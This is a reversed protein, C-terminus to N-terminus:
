RFKKQLTTHACDYMRAIARQSHTLLLRRYTAEDLDALKGHLRQYEIQNAKSKFHLKSATFQNMDMEFEEGTLDDKATIRGLKVKDWEIGYKRALKRVGNDSVWYMKWIQVFSKNLILHELEEKNPLNDKEFGVNPRSLNYKSALNRIPKSSCWYMKWIQEFTNTLLLEALHEKSINVMFTFNLLLFGHAFLIM